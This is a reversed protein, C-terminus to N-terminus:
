KISVYNKTSKITAIVNLGIFIAIGVVLVLIQIGTSNSEVINSVFPIAIAGVEFFAAFLLTAVAGIIAPLGYKYATKFYGPLFIINFLGFMVFIVGFFAPNIDMLFNTSGYILNHIIGFIVGLLIHISELIVLSIVKSKVIDKKTVPLMSLFAYDSQARYTVYIQIVSIWFFYLFVISFIWQPIFFLVSLIVPLIYFFKNISLKLEKYVLNKM